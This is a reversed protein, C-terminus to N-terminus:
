PEIEVNELWTSATGLQNAVSDLFEVLRIGVLTEPAAALRRHADGVLNRATEIAHRQEHTQRTKSM